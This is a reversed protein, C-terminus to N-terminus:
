QRKAPDAPRAMPTSCTASCFPGDGRGGLKPEIASHSLFARTLVWDMSEEWIGVRLVCPHLRIFTSLLLMIECVDSLSLLLSLSQFERKSAM